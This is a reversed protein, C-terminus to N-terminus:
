EFFIFGISFISWSYLAFSAFEIEDKFPFDAILDIGDAGLREYTNFGSLDIVKLSPEYLTFIVHESAIGSKYLIIWSSSSM